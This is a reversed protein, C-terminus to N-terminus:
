KIRRRYKEDWMDKAPRYVTIMHLELDEENLSLVIHFPEKQSFGMILYSPFPSDETYEEVIEFSKLVDFVNKMTIKRQFMRQLFHDKWFLSGNKITQLIKLKIGKM